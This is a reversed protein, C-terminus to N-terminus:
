LKQRAPKRHVAITEMRGKESHTMTTIKDMSWWEIYPVLPYGYRSRISFVSCLGSFSSKSGRLLQVPSQPKGQSLSHTDYFHCFSHVHFALASLSLCLSGTTQWFGNKGEEQAYVEWDGQSNPTAM